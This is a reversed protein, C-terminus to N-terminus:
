AIAASKNYKTIGFKKRWYAVTGTCVQFMDAVEADTHNVCLAILRDKDPSSCARGTESKRLGMLRAHKQVASVTVNYHEALEKNSMKNYNNIFADNTPLVAPRGRMDKKTVTNMM